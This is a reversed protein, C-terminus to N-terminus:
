FASIVWLGCCDHHREFRSMRRQPSPAALEAWNLRPDEEEMGQHCARTGPAWGRSGSLLCPYCHNGSFTPVHTPLHPAGLLGLLGWQPDWSGGPSTSQACSVQLGGPAQTEGMGARLSTAPCLSAEVLLGERPWASWGSDRIPASCSARALAGGAGTGLGPEPRSPCRDPVTAATAQWSHQPHCAPHLSVDVGPVDGNSLAGGRRSGLLGPRSLSTLLPPHLAPQQCGATIGAGLACAAREGACAGALRAAWSQSM